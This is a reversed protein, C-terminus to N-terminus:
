SGVMIQQKAVNKLAAEAEPDKPNTKPLQLKSIEDCMKKYSDVFDELTFHKVYGEKNGQLSEEQVSIGSTINIYPNNMIKGEHLLSEPTQLIKSQLAAALDTPDANKELFESIKLLTALDCNEMPPNKGYCIESYIKLALSDSLVDQFFKTFKEISVDKIKAFSKARTIPCKELNRSKLTDEFSHAANNKIFCLAKTMPECTIPCNFNNGYTHLIEGLSNTFDSFSKDESKKAVQGSNTNIFEIKKQILRANVFDLFDKKVEANTQTSDLEAMCSELEELTPSDGLLTKALDIKGLGIALSIPNQNEDNKITHDAGLKLLTEIADKDDRRVAKHLPTEGFPEDYSAGQFNEPKRTKVNIDFGKAHFTELDFLTHAFTEGRDNFEAPNNTSFFILDQIKKPNQCNKLISDGTKSHPKNFDFKDYLASLVNDSIQYRIIDHLVDSNKQIEQADLRAIIALAFAEHKKFEESKRRETSSNEINQLNLILEFLLRQNSLGVIEEISNILDIRGSKILTILLHDAYEKKIEGKNKEALFNVIEPSSNKIALTLPDKDYFYNGSNGITIHPSAKNKDVLFKVLKLQNTDIAIKLSDGFEFDSYFGAQDLKTIIEQFLALEGSSALTELFKQSGIKSAINTKQLLSNFLLGITIRLDNAHNDDEPNLLTSAAVEISSLLKSIQEPPTKELIIVLAQHYGGEAAIHSLKPSDFIADYSSLMEIIATHNGRVAVELPSSKNVDAKATLLLMAAGASNNECARYLATKGESDVCNIDVKKNRMLTKLLEPKNHIAAHHLLPKGDILVNPNKAKLFAAIPKLNNNRVAEILDEDSIPSIKKRSFFQKFAKSM